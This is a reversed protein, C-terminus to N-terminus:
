CHEISATCTAIVSSTDYMRPEMAAIRETSWCEDHGSFMTKWKMAEEESGEEFVTRLLIM